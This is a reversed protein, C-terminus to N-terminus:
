SKLKEEFKGLMQLSEKTMKENQALNDSRGVLVLWDLLEKGDGVKNLDVIEEDIVEKSLTRWYPNSTHQLKIFMFIDHKYILKAMIEIETKEFGLKPLVQRAIRESAVNHEFFSDILKGDKQRTIHKEPKGIDHFLMVYALMRRIKLEFNREITLKNMEEVSYLIHKLVNYKHWPNNQEQKECKRIQPIEEDLWTTFDKDHDFIKYFKEVVDRSLIIDDLLRIFKM